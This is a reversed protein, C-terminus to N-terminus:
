RRMAEPRGYSHGGYILPTSGSDHVDLVRGFFVTHSGAGHSSQLVCDFAAVCNRLVPAGTKGGIWQTHAFEFPLGDRSRGAFNESLQEQGVALVNVCFVGNTFIGVNVPSRRNICALMLPPDASVSNVSSATVALRGAPGDTSIITVLSFVKTMAALFIGRDVSPSTELALAPRCGNNSIGVGEAM